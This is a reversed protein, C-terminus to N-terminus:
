SRRCNATVRTIHQGTNTQLILKVSSWNKIIAGKLHECAGTDQNRSPYDWTLYGPKEFSLYPRSWTESVLTLQNSLAFCLRLIGFVQDYGPHKSSESPYISICVLIKTLRDSWKSRLQKRKSVLTEKILLLFAVIFSSQYLTMFYYYFFFFKISGKIILYHMTINENRELETPKATVFMVPTDAHTVPAVSRSTLWLTVGLYVSYNACFVIWGFVCVHRSQKYKSM